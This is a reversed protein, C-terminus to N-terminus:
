KQESIAQWPYWLRDFWWDLPPFRIIIRLLARTGVNFASHNFYLLATLSYVWLKQLSPIDTKNILYPVKNLNKQQKLVSRHIETETQLSYYPRSESPSNSFGGASECQLSVMRTHVHLSCCLKRLRKLGLWAGSGFVSWHPVTIFM